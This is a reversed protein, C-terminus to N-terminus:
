KARFILRETIVEAFRLRGASLSLSTLVNLVNQIRDTWHRLILPPPEHTKQDAFGSVIEDVKPRNTKVLNPWSVYIWTWDFLISM